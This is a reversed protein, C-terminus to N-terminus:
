EGDVFLCFPHGAPDVMIRLRDSDRDAPQVPAEDGGLERVLRVAAALDDVLVEFHMMKAQHGPQEPWVPAEYTDEAQINLSIGGDPNRLQLWGVGDSAVIDWGLLQSYFAGLEEADSCDITLTTWSISALATM